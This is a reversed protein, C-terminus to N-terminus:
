PESDTLFTPDRALDENLRNDAIEDYMPKGKNGCGVAPWNAATEGSLCSGTFQSSGDSGSWQSCSLTLRRLRM